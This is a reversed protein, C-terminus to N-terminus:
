GREAESVAPEPVSAVSNETELLNEGHHGHNINMRVPPDFGWRVSLLKEM